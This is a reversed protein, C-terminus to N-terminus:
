RPASFDLCALHGCLEEITPMTVGLGQWTGPDFLLQRVPEIHFDQSFVRGDEVLGPVVGSLVERTGKAVDCDIYVVRIPFAVPDRGLTDAFWGKHFACVGMEGYRHVNARVVSEAAAYEGSFDYSTRKADESLPEVGEFSDYVELRYGLIECIMSFKATSGGNWCGAEVMVEGPRARRTALTEFVQAIECPRHAHAVNWDIRLFRCLVRAKASLRLDIRLLRWYGWGFWALKLRQRHIETAIHPRLWRAYLRRLAAELSKPRM